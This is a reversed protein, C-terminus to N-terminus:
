SHDDFQDKDNVDILFHRQGILPAKIKRIDEFYGNGVLDFVPEEGEGNNYQDM